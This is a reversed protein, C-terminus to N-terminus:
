GKSSRRPAADSSRAILAHLSDATIRVSRGFHLAQLDGADILEYITSRSLGTANIVESIRLLLPSATRPGRPAHPAVQMDDLM